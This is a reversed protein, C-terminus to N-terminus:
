ALICIQLSGSLLARSQASNVLKLNSDRDLVFSMQLRCHSWFLGYCLFFGSRLRFEGSERNMTCRRGLFEQIECQFTEIQFSKAQSFCSFQLHELSFINRELNPSKPPARDELGSVEAFTDHRLHSTYTM